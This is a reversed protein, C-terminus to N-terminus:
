LCSLILHFLNTAQNFVLPWCVFSTCFLLLGLQLQEIEDREREARQREEIKRWGQWVIVTVTVSVSEFSFFFFFWGALIMARTKFILILYPHYSGYHATSLRSLAGFASTWTRRSSKRKRARAFAFCTLHVSTTTSRRADTRWGPNHRTMKTAM